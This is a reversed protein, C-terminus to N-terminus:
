APGPCFGDETAEGPCYHYALSNYLQIARLLEDLSIIWDQPAYDTSYPACTQDGFRSPAYGDESTADCHLGSSNYFQIIRLLEDIALVSDFDRDASQFAIEGEGEGQAIFVATVTRNTSMLLNITPSEPDAVGIDGEWHDFRFPTDLDETATLTANETNLYSHTGPTPNTNGEGTVNVTLTTSGQAFSATIETDQTVTLFFQKLVAQQSDVGGSWGTFVYGPKPIASFYVSTGAPYDHDGATPFANGQGSVKTRVYFSNQPVFLARLSRSVTIPVSITPSLPNIATDSLDGEWRVFRQGADPIATVTVDLDAAITYTGVPPSLTGNGYKSLALNFGTTAFNATISKNADMTIDLVPLISNVDGTWGAFYRAPDPTAVLHVVQGALYGQTGPAPSTTGPGIVSLDLIFDAPVFVANITKDGDMTITAAAQSTTIDGTWGQFAFGSGPINLANLDVVDGDDYRFAGVGPSVSGTGIRNINLNWEKGDFAFNATVNRAATMQVNITTATPDAAGIDGTWNVFNYGLDTAQASLALTLNNALRYEGAPPTTVGGPTTNLTLIHGAAEFRASLSKDADMTLQVIPATSTLAGSWGNFFATDPQAAVTATRGLLFSHVGPAPLLTAFNSAPGSKALTLTFDGPTVFVATISKDDDMLLSEFPNTSELDGTWESFAFGSGPTTIASVPITDGNTYSHQGAAPDTTGTGTVAIDLTRQALAGPALLLAILALTRINM